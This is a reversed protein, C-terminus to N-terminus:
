HARLFPQGSRDNHWMPATLPSSASCSASSSAPPCAATTGHGTLQNSLTAASTTGTASWSRYPGPPSSNRNPTSCTWCRRASTPRREPSPSPRRATGPARVGSAPAPGSLLPQPKRQLRVRLSSVAPHPQHALARGGAAGPEGAPAVVAPGQPGSRGGRPAARHDAQRITASEGRHVPSDLVTGVGYVVCGAEGVEQTVQRHLHQGPHARVADQAPGHGRPLRVGPAPRGPVSALEDESLGAGPAGRVGFGDGAVRAEVAGGQGPGPVPEVGAEGVARGPGCGGARERDDSHGNIRRSMSRRGLSAVGFGTQSRHDPGAYISRVGVPEPLCVQPAEFGGRVPSPPLGKGRPLGRGAAAQVAAVFTPRAKRTKTPM